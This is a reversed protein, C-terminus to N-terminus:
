AATGVACQRLAHPEVGQARARAWGPRERLVRSQRYRSATAERLARSQRYRSAGREFPADHWGNPLPPNVSPARHLADKARPPSRKYSSNYLPLERNGAVREDAASIDQRVGHMEPLFRRTVVVRRTPLRAKKGCSTPPRVKRGAARRCGHKEALSGSRSGGQDWSGPRRLRRLRSTINNADPSDLWGLGDAMEGLSVAEV